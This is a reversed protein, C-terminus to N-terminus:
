LHKVMSYRVALNLHTQISHLHLRIDLPQALLQEIFGLSAKNWVLLSLALLMSELCCLDLHGTSALPYVPACLM